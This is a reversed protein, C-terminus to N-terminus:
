GAGGGEDVPPPEGPAPETTPPPPKEGDPVEPGPEVPEPRPAACRGTIPGGWSGRGWLYATRSEHRGGVGSGGRARRTWDAVDRDWSSPGLEAKLPDVMWGACGRSYLLGSEDVAKRAGPQTGAIFWESTRDRTWPGPSGGSYADITRKVLGKPRRFKAIPWDNTYQRVFAQWLPAAATLSIAPNSSRPNSHDSNGMWIGVALGPYKSSKPPALYGYTALDRADNATGTKAAAPRRSGDKTNRLQLVPGWFQNTGPNTNGALIDTV